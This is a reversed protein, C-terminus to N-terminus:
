ATETDFRVQKLMGRANAFSANEPIHSSPYKGLVGKFCEAGGGVVLLKEFAAGSGIKRKVFMLIEEGVEKLVSEVHRSIDHERGWVKIMGTRICNNLGAIDDTAVEHEDAVRRGIKEIAKLVGVDHSGSRTHDIEVGFEGRTVIVCDTTRGGIDLVAWAGEMDVAMSGDDSIMHDVVAAVAEPYVDQKVIRPSKTPALSRVPKSLSAIKRQILADNAGSQQGFFAGPPLGTCLSVEMGSLGAQNLAHHVLVRNIDSTPYDEFRTDVSPSSPLVTYMQGNTEYANRPVGKIDTMTAGIGVRSPFTLYKPETMEETIWAMKIAAYGDDIGVFAKM